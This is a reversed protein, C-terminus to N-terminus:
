DRRTFVVALAGRVQNPLQEDRFEPVLERLRDLPVNIEGSFSLTGTEESFDLDLRRPLLLLRAGQESDFELRIGGRLTTYEGEVTEIRKSVPDIFAIQFSRDRAVVFQPRITPDLREAIDKQPLSGNPDFTLTTIDYVGVVLDRDIGPETPNGDDGCGATFVLAGILALAAPWRM